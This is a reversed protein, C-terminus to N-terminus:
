VSNAELVGAMRIKRSDKLETGDDYESVKELSDKKKVPTEVEGGM